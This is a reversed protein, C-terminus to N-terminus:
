PINLNLVTQGPAEARMEGDQTRANEGLRANKAERERRLARAWDADTIVRFVAADIARFREARTSM